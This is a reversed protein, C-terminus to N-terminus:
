KLKILFYLGANYFVQKDKNFFAGVKYGLGSKNKLLASVGAGSLPDNKSGYADIGLYLQTRNVEKTITNTVIPISLNEQISSGLLKNQSVTDMVKINGYKTKFSNSYYNTSYHRGVLTDLYVTDIGELYLTDFQLKTVFKPVEVKYPIPNDFAIRVTDKKHTTDSKFTTTKSKAEGCDKELKAIQKKYRNVECSKCTSLLILAVSLCVIITTRVDPMNLNIPPM